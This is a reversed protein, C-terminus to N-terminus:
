NSYLKQLIKIFERLSERKDNTHVCLKCDFYEECDFPIWAFEGTYDQFFGPTLCIGRDALINTLTTDHNESNFYNIDITSIIKQQLARLQPPSGGGVMLTRGKLDAITVVKFQALPDDKKTILYIKSKYLSLLKTDPVHKMENDFTFYIDQNGKLFEEPHYFDNFIPTVLIDPYKKAFEKIAQPLHYICSRTPLGITINDSYQRSFNQGQEIASKLEDKINRLTTCFQSGAPTLTAGKGSREFINFGIEKEVEKIQYTLTPQSIYLNEAARNFNLTQALELICDIQKTNM